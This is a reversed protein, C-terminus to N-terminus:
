QEKRLHFSKPATLKEYAIESLSCGKGTEKVGTWSLAPDLYDCRNMFFTGTQVQSGIKEAIEIDRKHMGFNSDALYLYGNFEKKSSEFKKAIYDIESLVRELSFRNSARLWDDGWACYTCTFPCGRM